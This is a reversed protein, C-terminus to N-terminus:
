GAGVGESAVVFSVQRGSGPGCVLQLTLRTVPHRSRRGGSGPRAAPPIVMAGDGAENITVSRGGGPEESVTLTRVTPSTSLSLTGDECASILPSPPGFRDRAKLAAAFLERQPRSMAALPLPGGKGVIQRQPPTLSAFLRLADRGDAINRLDNLEEPFVEQGVLDGVGELQPDTLKRGIELYQDLPLAGRTEGM